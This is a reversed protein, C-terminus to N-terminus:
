TAQPPPMMLTSPMAARRRSPASTRSTRNWYGAAFAFTVAAGTFLLPTAKVLIEVASVQNSLPAILFQYFVDVPNKGTFLVLVLTLLFTVVVAALPILPRVWLPAPRRELKFRIM